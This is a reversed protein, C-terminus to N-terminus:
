IRKFCVHERGCRRYFVPERGIVATLNSQPSRRPISRTMLENKELPM